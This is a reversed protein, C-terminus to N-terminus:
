EILMAIKIDFIPSIYLTIKSLLAIISTIISVVTEDIPSLAKLLHKDNCFIVIGGKTLESPFVHIGELLRTSNINSDVISRLFSSNEM